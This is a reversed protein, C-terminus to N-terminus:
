GHQADETFFLQYQRPTLGTYKKFVKSFHSQDYYGVAVATEMSSIGQELMIRANQVRVNDLYEHPTMGKEKVFTRLLHYKSIDTCKALTDLLIDESFHLDIYECVGQVYQIKETEQMTDYSYEQILTNIFYCLCDEIVSDIKEKRFIEIFGLFENVITEEHIVSNNFTIELIQGTFNSIFDARVNLEYFEFEQEGIPECSHKENPNIILFDGPGILQVSNNNRYNREGSLIYIFAYYDHFHLPYRQSIGKFYYLEISNDQNCLYQKETRIM